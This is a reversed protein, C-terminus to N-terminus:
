DGPETEGGSTSRAANQGDSTRYPLFLDLGDKLRVTYFESRDESAPTFTCPYTIIVSEFQSVAGLM